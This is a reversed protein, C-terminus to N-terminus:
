LGPMQFREVTDYVDDQLEKVARVFKPENELLRYFEKKDSPDEVSRDIDMAIEIGRSVLVAVDEFDEEIFGRTTMAPTGIRIGGPVLASTDGPVSNKNLTISALDLVKEVKAGDIRKNHLDLLILHNDTGGSVLEYGMSMLKSAM